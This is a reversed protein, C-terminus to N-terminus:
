AVGGQLRWRGDDDCAGGLLLRSRRPRHVSTTPFPCRDKLCHGLQVHRDVVLTGCSKPAELHVVSSHLSRRVEPSTLSESSVLTSSPLGRVWVLGEFDLVLHDAALACCCILCLKFSRLPRFFSAGKRARFSGSEMSQSSGSSM